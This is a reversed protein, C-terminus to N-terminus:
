FRTIDLENLYLEHCERTDLLIMTDCRRYMLQQSDYIMYRHAKRHDEPKLKFVDRKHEEHYSWHHWHYEKSRGLSRVARRARLIEPFSANVKRAKERQREAEKRVWEPDTREKLRRRNESDERTCTKCKGLHGDAMQPHKYFEEIPQRLGCKFCTKDM